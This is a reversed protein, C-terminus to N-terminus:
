ACTSFTRSPLSCALAKHVRVGHVLAPAALYDAPSPFVSGDLAVHRPQSTARAQRAARSRRRRGRGLGATMVSSTIALMSRCTM